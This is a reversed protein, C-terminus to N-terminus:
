LKVQDLFVAGIGALILQLGENNKGLSVSDVNASIMTKLSVEQGRLQGRATLHYVCAVQRQNDENTGDWTLRLLGTEPQILSITKILKNSAAFIAVTIRQRVFDPIDVAFVAEGKVGLYLQNGYVFVKRGVLASARLAFNSQLSSNLQQLPEQASSINSQKVAIRPRTMFIKKYLAVM